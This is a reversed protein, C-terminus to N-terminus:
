RLMSAFFALWTLAVGILAGAAIAAQKGQQRLCAALLLAAPVLTGAAVFFQAPWLLRDKSSCTADSASTCTMLAFFGSVASGVVCGALLAGALVAAVKWKRKNSTMLYSALRPHMASM